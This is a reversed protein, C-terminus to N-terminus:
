VSGKPSLQREVANLLQDLTWPKSLFTSCEPLRVGPDLQGASMVIVATAPWRDIILHALDVGNLQGPMQIDTLVLDLHAMTELVTIAEDVCGCSHVDLDLSELAECALTRILEDDEVVLVSRAMIFVGIM